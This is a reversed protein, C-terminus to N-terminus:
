DFGIRLPIRVDDLVRAYLFGRENEARWFVFLGRTAQARLDTLTVQSM